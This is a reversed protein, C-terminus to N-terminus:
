LPTCNKSMKVELLAGLRGTKLSKSLFSHAGAREESTGVRAPRLVSSQFFVANQKLSWVRPDRCKCKKIKKIEKIKQSESREIEQAMSKTYRM